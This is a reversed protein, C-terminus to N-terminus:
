NHNGNQTAQNQQINNQTLNKFSWRVRKVVAASYNGEHNENADQEVLPDLDPPITIHRKPWRSRENNKPRKAM